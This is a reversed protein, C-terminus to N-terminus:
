LRIYGMKSLHLPVDWGVLAAQLFYTVYSPCQWNGFLFWNLIGHVPFFILAWQCPGALPHYASCLCSQRTNIHVPACSQATPLACCLPHEAPTPSSACPTSLAAPLPLSGQEQWVVRYMTHQAAELSTEKANKEMLLKSFFINKEFTYIYSDLFVSVQYKIYEAWLYFCLWKMLTNVDWQNPNCVFQM